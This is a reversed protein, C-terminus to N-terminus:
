WWALVMTDLLKAGEGTAAAWFAVDTARDFGSADGPTVVMGFRTHETFDADDPLADSNETSYHASATISDDDGVAVQWEPETTSTNASGIGSTNSSDVRRFGSALWDAGSKDRQAAHKWTNAGNEIGCNSQSGGDSVSYLQARWAVGVRKAGALPALSATLRSPSSAGSNDIDLGDADGSAVMTAGTEIEPTYEIRNPTYGVGNALTQTVAEWDTHEYVECWGGFLVVGVNVRVSATYTKGGFTMSCTVKHPGAIRTCGRQNYTMSASSASTIQGTSSNDHPDAATWAISDPTVNVGGGDPRTNLVASFAAAAQAQASDAAPSIVVHVDEVGEAAQGAWGGSSAWGAM